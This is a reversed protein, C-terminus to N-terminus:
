SEEYASKLATVIEGFRMAHSAKVLMASNPELQRKLEDLAAEKTEFHIADGGNQEAGAAIDAARPGIAVVYDIGLMATLAGINYHAQKAYGGLEGMDGLVAVRKDCETRSLVELAATVSQPNANYCDDLLIRNDRLHLVRMRSGSPTYAAVGRIIEERNLGLEEGVAVGMAAPIAMYGGPAPVELSYTDRETRVTCQIGDVSKDFFDVIRVQCRPSYGCRITRFPPAVQNLLPDDGNLIALGGEHLHTFIECKAKLIGERSGLYEIHADGVNTIVAIDPRILSGLYEIEGFHNMGTEIVAVEDNPALKLLTLPVGIQNNFNGETKLTRLKQRLVSAIMEKTTTKGVSGTIQIIPRTFRDRHAAALAGLALTTDRVHIYFKDPRQNDLPRSCLCGAAGANLADPIYDHGDFHEGVIPIFLCDPTINRSDTSVASIVPPHYGHNKWVGRVAAAIEAIEMGRM